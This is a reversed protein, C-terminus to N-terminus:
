NSAIVTMGGSNLFSVSKTFFSIIVSLLSQNFVTITDFINSIYLTHSSPLDQENYM